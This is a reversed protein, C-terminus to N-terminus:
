QLEIRQFMQHFSNAQWLTFKTRMAKITRAAESFLLLHHTTSFRLNCASIM